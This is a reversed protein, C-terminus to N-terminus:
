LRHRCLAFCRAGPETSEKICDRVELEITTPPRVPFHGVRNESPLEVTVRRCRKVHPTGPDSGATGVRVVSVGARSSRPTQRACASGTLGTQTVVAVSFRSTTREHLPLRRHSLFGNSVRNSTSWSPLSTIGRCRPRPLPNPAARTDSGTQVADKQASSVGVTATSCRHRTDPCSMHTPPRDSVGEKESIKM